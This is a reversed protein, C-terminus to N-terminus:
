IQIFKTNEVGEKVYSQKFKDNIFNLVDNSVGYKGQVQAEEIVKYSNGGENTQYYGLSELLFVSMDTSTIQLLTEKARTTEVYYLRREEEIYEAVDRIPTGKDLMINIAEFNPMSVNDCAFSIVHKWEKGKASHITTLDIKSGTVSFNGNEYQETTRMFDKIGSYGLEELLSKFYSFIGVVCRHKDALKYMIGGLGDLYMQMMCTLKVTADDTNVLRYIATIDERTDASLSFWVARLRNQEAEPLRFERSTTIGMVGCTKLFVGLTDNFETGLSDQLKGLTNAKSMGLFRCMKPLLGRIAQKDWCHDLLSVMIKIDKYIPTKSLKMEETYNCYIGNKLLMNSLLALHMNNRSMVCIDSAKEGHKILESIRNMAINSLALINKKGSLAIEIEGGTQSASITKKYRNANNKVSAVAHDVIKSRCRYNTSLMKLQMDFINCINLIITPDAGRWKYISQDDDGIFVLKRDLKNPNTEDALMERLIKFQIKSVDQAEDIFYYQWNFKCFDRIQKAMANLQPDNSNKGYVLWSYIYMQMDDFDIQKNLSKIEAYRKRVASYTKIDIDITNVQSQVAMEDSMLNNVQYSLMNNLDGLMNDKLEFNAYKSAEVIYQLRTGESIVENNVNCQRLLYLFLAHLTTVKIGYSIGMKNLLSNVRSELETTGAKSYTACLIKSMDSIEHNLIRKVILAVLTTTKGSGACAIIALNDKCLLIQRQEDSFKTGSIREINDIISIERSLASNNVTETVPEIGVMKLEQLAQEYSM